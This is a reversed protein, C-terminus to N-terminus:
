RENWTKTAPLIRSRPCGTRSTDLGGRRVERGLRLAGARTIASESLSSLSFRSVDPTFAGARARRSPACDEVSKKGAVSRNDTASPQAPTEATAPGAEVVATSAMAPKQSAGGTRCLISDAEAWSAFTGVNPDM